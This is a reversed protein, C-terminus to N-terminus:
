SNQWDVICIQAGAKKGKQVGMDALESSFANAPVYGARM